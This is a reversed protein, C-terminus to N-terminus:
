AHLDPDRFSIRDGEYHLWPRLRPSAANWALDIRSPKFDGGLRLVLSSSTDVSRREVGCIRLLIVYAALVPDSILPIEDPSVDDYTEVM